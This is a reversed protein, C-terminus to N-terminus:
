TQIVEGMGGRDSPTEPPMGSASAPAAGARPRALRGRAVWPGHHAHRVPGHHATDLHEYRGRHLASHALAENFRPAPVAECADKLRAECARRPAAIRVSRRNPAGSGRLGCRGLLVFFADGAAGKLGLMPWAPRRLTPQKVRSITQDAASSHVARM